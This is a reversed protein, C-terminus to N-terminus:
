REEGTDRSTKLPKGERLVRGDKVTLAGIDQVPSHHPKLAAVPADSSQIYQEEARRQAAQLANIADTVSNFLDHYMKEYDAM